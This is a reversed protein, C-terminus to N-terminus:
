RGYVWVAMIAALAAAAGFVTWLLWDRRV